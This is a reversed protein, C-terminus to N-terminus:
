GRHGWACLTNGIVARGGRHVADARVFGPADDAGLPTDAARDFADDFAASAGTAVEGAGGSEGDVAAVGVGLFVQIISENGVAAAIEDVAFSDITVADVEM